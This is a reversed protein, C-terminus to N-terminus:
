KSTAVYVGNWDEPPPAQEYEECRAMMVRCAVDGGVLDSAQAWLRRARGFDRDVYAQFAEECLSCFTRETDDAEEALCRIEYIRVGGKRGKVAVMDLVRASIRERAGALTAESVCIRTGYVKNIGELRSALNVTDGIITYNLRDESGINGVVVEGTHLGMRTVLAPRGEQVWRENLRGIRRQVAVAAVCARVAHDEMSRPAGWFAMVADGIFKDITAGHAMLEDTVERFYESLQAVLEEPTLKEAISTFGKVDSFFVTLIRREGELAAEKGSLVLQRVLERPLYKGFSRLGSRMKAMALGLDDVEQITSRVVRESSLDMERIRDAEDALEKLPRATRRALLLSLLLALGVVALSFGIALYQNKRVRGLFDSEPVVIGVVWGLGERGPLGEYRAWYRRGGTQFVFDVSEGPAPRGRALLKRYSVAVPREPCEAAPTLEWKERGRRVVKRRLLSVKPYGVLRGSRNVLFVRGRRGVKLTGLFESLAYLEVEVNVVGRLSGHSDFVPTASGIGPKKDTFFLYVGTWGQRGSRKAQRYWPRGRPDYRVSRSYWIAGVRGTRDRYKWVVLPGGDGRLILKTGLSGKSAVYDREPGPCLRGLGAVRRVVLWLPDADPCSAQPRLIRAKVPFGVPFRKVMLFDGDENGYNLMAVTPYVKALELFYAELESPEGLRVVRAGALHRSLRAARDAPELYALARDVVRGAANTFVQDALERATRSGFYTNMPILAAAVALITGAFVTSLAVRFPYRSRVLTAM